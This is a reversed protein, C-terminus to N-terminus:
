LRSQAGRHLVSDHRVTYASSALGGLGWVGWGGSGAERAKGETRHSISHCSTPRATQVRARSRGLEPCHRAISAAWHCESPFNFFVSERGWEWPAVSTGARGGPSKFAGLPTECGPSLVGLSPVHPKVRHAQKRLIGIKYSCFVQHPLFSRHLGDPWARPFEPPPSHPSNGRAM